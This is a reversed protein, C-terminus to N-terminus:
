NEIFKPLQDRANLSSNTKKNEKKRRSLTKDFFTKLAFIKVRHNKELRPFNELIPLSKFTLL